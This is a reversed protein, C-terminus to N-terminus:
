AVRERRLAQGLCHAGGGGLTFMSLDPDYVEIGRARLQENLSKSYESSLAREDGLSIANVGLAFAEAVPVELIEFGADRLWRVLGAGAVDVCVAALKPALISVLVDIHVFQSPIMEIRVEWGLEEMWGALQRAAPAETREEGNGILMRGPEVIIVDGGELAAATIMRHIPIEAEQYFRIVPAYEGRRWPQHLQTVIAGEPTAVSSDRAFVQYPLAPDPELFHCRVGADEYAAVMEAHQAVAKASSFTHEGALTQKSIASTPLWRFNDPPGILVDLMRGYESDVGWPTEDGAKNM